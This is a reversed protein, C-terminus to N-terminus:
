GRGGPACHIEGLMVAIFALTMAVVIICTAVGGFTYRDKAM